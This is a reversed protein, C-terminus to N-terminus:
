RYRESKQIRSCQAHKLHLDWWGKRDDEISMLLIDLGASLGWERILTEAAAQDFERDILGNSRQLHDLVHTVAGEYDLSAPLNLGSWNKVPIGDILNDM